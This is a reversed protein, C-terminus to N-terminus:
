RTPKAVAQEQYSKDDTKVVKNVSKKENDSEPEFKEEDYGTEGRLPDNKVGNMKAELDSDIDSHSSSYDRDSDSDALSYLDEMRVASKTPSATLRDVDPSQGSIAEDKDDDSSEEVDNEPSKVSIGM